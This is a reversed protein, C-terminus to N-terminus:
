ECRDIATRAQLNLCSSSPGAMMAALEVNLRNRGRNLPAEAYNGVKLGQMTCPPEPYQASNLICNKEPVKLSCAKKQKM